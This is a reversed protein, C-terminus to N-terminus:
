WDCYFISVAVIVRICSNWECNMWKFQLYLWKARKFMNSPNMVMNSSNNNNGYFWYLKQKRKQKLDYFILEIENTCQGSGDVRIEEKLIENFFYRFVFSHIYCIRFLADYMKLIDVNFNEKLASRTKKRTENKNTIKKNTIQCLFAYFMPLFKCLIMLLENVRRARKVFFTQIFLAQVTKLWCFLVCIRVACECVCVCPKYQNM